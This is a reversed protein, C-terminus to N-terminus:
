EVILKKRLIGDDTQLKIIYMGTPLEAISIRQHPYSVDKVRQGNITYIALSQVAGKIDIFTSAPNPYISINADAITNPVSVTELDICYNPPNPTPHINNTDPDIINYPKVCIFKLDAVNISILNHITDTRPFQNGNLWGEYYYPQVYLTDNVKHTKYYKMSFSNPDNAVMNDSEAILTLEIAQSSVINVDVETVSWPNQASAINGLLLLFFIASIHKM